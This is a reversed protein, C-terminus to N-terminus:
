SCREERKEREKRERREKRKKVPLPYEMRQRDKKNFKRKM